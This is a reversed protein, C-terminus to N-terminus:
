ETNTSVGGGGWAVVTRGGMIAVLIRNPRQLTSAGADTYYSLLRRTVQM